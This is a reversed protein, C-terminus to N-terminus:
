FKMRRFQPWGHFACISREIPIRPWKTFRNASGSVQGATSADSFERPYAWVVTPLRTGPKYDPPLYLTFSLPVGDERKYTVLQKTIGRVQPASDTFSTLTKKLPETDDDRVEAGYLYFEKLNTLGSLASDAAIALPAAPRLRDGGGICAPRPM